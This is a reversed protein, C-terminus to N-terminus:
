YERGFSTNDPIIDWEILEIDLAPKPKEVVQATIIIEKGAIVLILQYEGPPVDPPLNLTLKGDQEIKINNYELAKM